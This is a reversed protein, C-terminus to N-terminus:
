ISVSEFLSESETLQRFQIAGCNCRTRGSETRVYVGSPPTTTRLRACTLPGSTLLGATAVPPSRDNVQYHKAQATNRM